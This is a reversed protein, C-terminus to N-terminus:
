VVSNALYCSAALWYQFCLSGIFYKYYNFFVVSEAIGVPSVKGIEKCIEEVTKYVCLGDEVAKQRYSCLLCCVAMCM